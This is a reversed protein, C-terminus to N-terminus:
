RWLRGAICRLCEYIISLARTWTNRNTAANKTSKKLVHKAGERLIFEYWLLLILREQDEVVDKLKMENIEEIDLVTSSATDAVPLVDSCVKPDKAAAMWKLKRSNQTIEGAIHRKWDHLVYGVDEFIVTRKDIRFLFLHRHCIRLHPDRSALVDRAENYLYIGLWHQTNM